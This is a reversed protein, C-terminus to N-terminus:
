RKRGVTLLGVVGIREQRVVELGVRHFLANFEDASYMHVFGPELKFLVNALFLPPFNIDVMILKGNKKLVREMEQLAELPRPFHHFAETCAVYDFTGSRHPIHEVEALRVDANKVQKLKKRAQAVMESSLDIGALKGKSVTKSLVLLLHGTGCGVDLVNTRASLQLRRAIREQVWRLWWGVPSCDYSSAWLDFFWINKKKKTEADTTM